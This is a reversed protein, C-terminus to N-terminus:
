LQPDDACLDNLEHQLTVKYYGKNHQVCFAVACCLDGKDHAM